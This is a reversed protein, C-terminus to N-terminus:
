SSVVAVMGVGLGIATIGSLQLYSIVLTGNCSYSRVLATGVALLFTLFITKGVEGYFVILM